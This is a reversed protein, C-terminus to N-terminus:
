VIVKVERKFASSILGAVDVRSSNSQVGINYLTHTTTDCALGTVPNFLSPGRLAEDPCHKLLDIDSHITFTTRFIEGMNKDGDGQFQRGETFTTTPGTAATSNSAQPEARRDLQCNPIGWCADGIWTACRERAWNTSWGRILQIDNIAAALQNANNNAIGDAIWEINAKFGQICNSNPNGDCPTYDSDLWVCRKLTGSSDGNRGNTPYWAAGKSILMESEIVSKRNRNVTLDNVTVGIQDICIGDTGAFAFFFKMLPWGNGRKVRPVLFADWTEKRGYDIYGMGCGTDASWPIDNFSKIEWYPFNGGAGVNPINGVTAAVTAVTPARPVIPLAGIIFSAVNLIIQAAQLAM